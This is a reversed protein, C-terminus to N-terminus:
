FSMVATETLSWSDPPSMGMLGFLPGGVIPAYVYSVDVQIRRPATTIVFAEAVAGEPLSTIATDAALAEAAPDTLATIGARAGAMAAHTLKLRTFMLNGFEVIALFVILLVPLVLAM